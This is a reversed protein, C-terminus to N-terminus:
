LGRNIWIREGECELRSIIVGGERPYHAEMVEMMVTHGGGGVASIFEDRMESIAKMDSSFYRDRLVAGNVTMQLRFMM